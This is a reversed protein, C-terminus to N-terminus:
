HVWHLFCFCCGCWLVALISSSPQSSTGKCPRYLMSLKLFDLLFCFVWLMGLVPKLIEQYVGFRWVDPQPRSRVYGPLLTRGQLWDRIVVLCLSSPPSMDKLLNPTWRTLWQDVPVLSQHPVLPLHIRQPITPRLWPNVTMIMMVTMMEPFGECIGDVGSWAWWGGFSFTAFGRDVWARCTHPNQATDGQDRHDQCPHDEWTHHGQNDGSRRPLRRTLSLPWFKEGAKSPGAVQLLNHNGWRLHHWVMGDIPWPKGLHHPLRPRDSPEVEGQGKPCAEWSPYCTEEQAQYWRERCTRSPQIQNIQGEKAKDWSARRTRRSRSTQTAEGQAIPLSHFNLCVKRQLNVPPRIDDSKGKRKKKSPPPPPPMSEDDDDDNAARLSEAIKKLQQERKPAMTASVKVGRNSLLSIIVCKWTPRAFYWSFYIKSKWTNWPIEADLPPKEVDLHVCKFAVYYKMIKTTAACFWAWYNERTFHTLFRSFRKWAHFGHFGNERTFHFGHFGNERTFNTFATFGNKVTSTRSVMFNGTFM